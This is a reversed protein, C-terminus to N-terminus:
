SALSSCIMTLQYTITCPCNRTATPQWYWFGSSFGRMSAAQSWTTRVKFIRLQLLERQRGFRFGRRRSEGASPLVCDRKGPADRAGRQSAAFAPALFVPFQQLLEAAAPKGARRRHRRGCQATGGAPKTGRASQRHRRRRLIGIRNGDTRLNRGFRCPRTILVLVKRLQSDHASRESINESSGQAHALWAPPCPKEAIMRPATLPHEDIPERIRRERLCSSAFFDRCGLVSSAIDEDYTCHRSCWSARM